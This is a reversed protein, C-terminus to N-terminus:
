GPTTITQAKHRLIQDRADEHRADVRIQFSNPM